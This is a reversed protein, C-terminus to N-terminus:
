QANLPYINEFADGGTIFKFVGKVGKLMKSEMKISSDFYNMDKLQGSYIRPM